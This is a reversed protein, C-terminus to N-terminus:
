AYGSSRQYLLCFMREDVEVPGQPAHFSRGEGAYIERLVGLSLPRQLLETDTLRLAMAQGNRNAAAEVQAREWVGLRAYRSHLTRPRDCVVDALQSVARIHGERHGTRGGKVYWLVRAPGALAKSNGPPRYYVHERSLGLGPDRAFLTADALNADFLREAWAPEISVMFTKLGAGIVKAPWHMREIAAASRATLEGSLVTESAVFGRTLHCTWAGGNTAFSELSLARVVAASPVQDEIVVKGIKQDAAAKRQLFLLQRAIADTLRDVRRVRMVAIVVADPTTRRVVGALIAGDADRVVRVESASADALARRLAARLDVAREGEGHNLLARVFENQDTAVLREEVLDTGQLVAPEYRDQSRQRDLRDLLTEPTLMLTEFADELAPAASLLKDDRTVLYVAGGEIARAVHRHDAAGARPALEAVRPLLARWLAGPRSLNRYSAVAGLLKARLADDPTNNSEISAEDTVCFEVHEAVWDDLLHRSHLGERRDIVLDELVVQDLCALDGVIPAASFLDPHGFDLEWTTLLHGESSRGPRNHIPRFGLAQWMDELKYDRRCALEINRRDSHRDKLEHVLRRAIGCGRADASVCLYRLKVRDGTIDFLVYGSLQGDCLAALLTGREARETFGSDPLFGLTAKAARHLQVVARLESSGPAVDIIIPDAVSLVEAGEPCARGPPRSPVM